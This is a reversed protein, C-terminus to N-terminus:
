GRSDRLVLTVRSSIASGNKQDQNPANRDHLPLSRCFGGFGDVTLNAYFPLGVFRVASPQRNVALECQRSAPIRASWRKGYHLASTPKESSISNIQVTM